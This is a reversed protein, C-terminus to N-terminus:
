KEYNSNNNNKHCQLLHARQNDVETIWYIINIVYTSLNFNSEVM